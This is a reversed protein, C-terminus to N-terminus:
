LGSVCLEGEGIRTADGMERRKVLGIMVRGAARNYATAANCSAVYQGAIGLKAATSRCAAAPGINYALSNMMARWSIPKRAFGPICAVLKARFEAMRRGLRATCGAPTEVMGPKVDVTDGGCITYPEGGTAPDAYARLEWGEWPIVLTTEALAVDDPVKAGTSLAVMGGIALAVIGAIASKGRKTSTLRNVAM